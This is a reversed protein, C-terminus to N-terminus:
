FEGFHYCFDITVKFHFGRLSLILSNLQFQLLIHSNLDDIAVGCSIAFPFTLPICASQLTAELNFKSSALKTINQINVGIRM